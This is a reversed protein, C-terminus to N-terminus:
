MLSRGRLRSQRDALRRGKYASEMNMRRPRARHLKHAFTPATPLACANDVALGGTRRSGCRGCIWPAAAGRFSMAPMPKALVHVARRGKSGEARGWATPRARVQTRQWARVTVQVYKAYQLSPIHRVSSTFGIGITP